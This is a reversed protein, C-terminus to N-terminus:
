MLACVESKSQSARYGRAVVRGFENAAMDVTALPPQQETKEKPPSPTQSQVSPPAAGDVAALPSFAVQFVAGVPRHDSSQFSMHSRYSLVDVDAAKGNSRFLVRDTWSPIRQKPSSDYVASRKDFKYTPRFHLPGERFHPFVRGRAMEASLQDNFRLVAHQDHLLLLDVMRRTGNVRYNLDGLWFVRDFRDAAPVRRMAAAATTNAARSISVRANSPAAGTMSQRSNSQSSVNGPSALTAPPMSKRANAFSPTASNGAPDAPPFLKLEQNIRHFNANRKDVNRQHADFHCNVFLFSTGGACLAVGVGGKNGLQNGLGTAVADSQVHSLLPLASEHVFVAHHIATLAHSAVLTYEDGLADRLQKEWSKKSTFVVLKAISHVCEETGIAVIHYKNRRIWLRLDDDAPKKAHMNWTGCFVRLQDRSLFRAHTVREGSVNALEGLEEWDDLAELNLEEPWVGTKEDDDGKSAVRADGLPSSTADAADPGVGERPTQQASAVATRNVEQDSRRRKRKNASIGDHGLHRRTLFGRARAQIAVSADHELENLAEARLQADLEERKARARQRGFVGRMHAQIRVAMAELDAM